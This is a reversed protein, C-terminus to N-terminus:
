QPTRGVYSPLFTCEAKCTDYPGAYSSAHMLQASGRLLCSTGVVRKLNYM